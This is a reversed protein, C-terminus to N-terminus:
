DRSYTIKKIKELYDINSDICSCFNFFNSFIDCNYDFAKKNKDFNNLKAIQSSELLNLLIELFLLNKEHVLIEEKLVNRINKFNVSEDDSNIKIFIQNEDISMLLKDRSEKVIQLITSIIKIEENINHPLKQFSKRMNEINLNKISPKTYLNILQAQGEYFLEFDSIKGNPNDDITFGYYLLYDSNHGDNYSIKIEELSNINRSAEIVFNKDDDFYWFVPKEKLDTNFMDAYPVLADITYEPLDLGFSRSAILLYYKFFNEYSDNLINYDLLKLRQYTENVEKEFNELKKYFSTGILLKREEQNFNIPYSSFDEPLCSFYNRLHSNDLKLNENKLYSILCDYDYEHISINKSNCYLKM